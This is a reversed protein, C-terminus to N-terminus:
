DEGLIGEDQVRQEQGESGQLFQQAAETRLVARGGQPMPGFLVLERWVFRCRAEQPIAACHSEEPLVGDQLHPQIRPRRRETEHPSFPDEDLFGFLRIRHRAKEPHIPIPHGKPLDGFARILSAERRTPASSPLGRCNSVDKPIGKVDSAHSPIVHDPVPPGRAEDFGLEEFRNM